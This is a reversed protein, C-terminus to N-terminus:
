ENDEDEEDEEDEDDDGQSRRGRKPQRRPTIKVNGTAQGVGFNDRMKTVNKAVGGKGQSKKPARASKGAKARTSSEKKVKENAPASAKVRVFVGTHKFYYTMWDWAYEMAARVAAPTAMKRHERNQASEALTSNDSVAKFSGLCAWSTARCVVFVAYTEMECVHVDKKGWKDSIERLFDASGEEVNSGTVFECMRVPSGTSKRQVCWTSLITKINETPFEESKLDTYHRLPNGEKRGQEPYWAKSAVCVEQVKTEASGGAIGVTICHTFSFGSRAAVSLYVAAHVPGQENAYAVTV